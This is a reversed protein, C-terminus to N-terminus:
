IGATDFADAAARAGDAGGFVPTPTGVIAWEFDSTMNDGATDGGIDLPNVICEGTVTAGAETSPTFTFPVTVGINAWSFAVIGAPDALDEVFTGALKYAYTSAGPLADGCLTMVDDDKNSDAQVAVGTAQCSADVPTGVEGFTLTGPGLKNFSVTM